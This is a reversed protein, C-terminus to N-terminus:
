LAEQQTLDYVWKLIEAVTDFLSEPIESDVEVEFLSRALPVNRVVPVDNKKAIEIIRAALKEQGKAVVQPAQMRSQEYSLAVAIHTPNVVVVTARPVREKVNQALMEKHMQRRRGKVHPDGEEQKSERVVEDKSMMLEKTYLKRQLFYDAGGLLLFVSGVAFLLYFVAHSALLATKDLSLRGSMLVEPLMTKLVLYALWLIVLLKVVNKGFDIYTRAKFFLKKFGEAPNLKEFKPTLVEPAFLARVQFFNAALAILVLSGFLPIMLVFFKGLYGGTRNLLPGAALSSGLVKASFSDLAFEKWRDVFQAGALALVGATTLFLFAQTLDSSKFVQGKKRADRLRKATPQETKNEAM